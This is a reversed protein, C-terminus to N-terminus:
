KFNKKLKSLIQTETTDEQIFHKTHLDLINGVKCTKIYRVMNTVPIGTMSDICADNLVGLKTYFIYDILTMCM